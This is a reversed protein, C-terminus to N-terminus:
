RRKKKKGKGKKKNYRNQQKNTPTKESGTVYMDYQQAFSLPKEEENDEDESDDIDFTSDYNENVTISSISVECPTDNATDTTTNDSENIVEPEIDVSISPHEMETIDIYMISGYDSKLEVTYWKNMDIENTFEDDNNVIFNMQSVGLNIFMLINSPNYSLNGSLIINYRYDALAKEVSNKFVDYVDEYICYKFDNDDSSSDFSNLELLTNWFNIISEFFMKTNKVNILLKYFVDFTSVDTDIGSIQRLMDNLMTNAVGINDMTIYNNGGDNNKDVNLTAVQLNRYLTLAEDEDIFPNNPIIMNNIVSILNQIPITNDGKVPEFKIGANAMNFKTMFNSRRAAQTDNSVPSTEVPQVVVSETEPNNMPTIIVKRKRTTTNNPTMQQNNSVFNSKTFDVHNSTGGTEKTYLVDGTEQSSIIIKMKKVGEDKKLGVACLLENIDDGKPKSLTSALYTKGCESCVINNFGDDYDLTGCCLKGNIIDRCFRKKSDAVYMSPYDLLVPGFGSRYGWNKFSRTGIDDMAINNNRIKFYLIDYIEQAYKQYESIDKFPIVNEIIALTGCPSIEFSKNCFPKLVNQNTYEKINSIFGVNDTAIKAVVRKDYTCEYARRNTGGGILKFGRKNMLDGITAYMEKVNCHMYPSTAIKNLLSIDEQSFYTLLPNVHYSNFWAIYEQMLKSEKIVDKRYIDILNKNVKM